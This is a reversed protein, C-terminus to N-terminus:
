QTEAEDARIVAQKLFGARTLSIQRQYGKMVCKAKTAAPGAPASDPARGLLRQSIKRAKCGPEKHNGNLIRQISM